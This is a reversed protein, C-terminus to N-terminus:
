GMDRLCGINKLRGWTWAAELKGTVARELEVLTLERSQEFREILNGDIKITWEIGDDERQCAVRYGRWTLQYAAIM